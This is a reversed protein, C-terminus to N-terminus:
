KITEYIKCRLRHDMQLKVKYTIPYLSIRKDKKRFPLEAIKGVSNVLSDMQTGTIQSPVKEM